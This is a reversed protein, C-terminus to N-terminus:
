KACRLIRETEEQALATVGAFDVYPHYVGELANHSAKAERLAANGEERLAVTIRRAFRIRSRDSNGTMADLRLRRYPKGPYTCDASSTVFALGLSPILLHQIQSLDEPNPCVITDWGAAVAADHLKLLAGSGLEWHDVLEYVRHCLTDVTDFRWVYGKHTMGGLFRVTTRGSEQGKKHVERGIIGAVRRNLRAWDMEAKMRACADLEVQRAAKLCHYARRYAEKGSETHTVVELRHAKVADVDYFRGLNVYRDVAAPYNPEIVHPSTGDAILAHCDPLIVADLSDPDGSCWIYEVRQGADEAAKGVQKMFTSKGVGPGGKLVLLDRTDELDAINEYLNQFGEGSNAGLFFHTVQAM